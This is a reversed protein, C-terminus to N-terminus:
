LIDLYNRSLVKGSIHASAPMFEPNAATGWGVKDITKGSTDTLWVHGSANAM